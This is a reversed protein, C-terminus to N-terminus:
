VLNVLDDGSHPAPLLVSAKPPAWARHSSVKSSAQFFVMVKPAPLGGPDEVAALRAIRLPLTPRRAGARFPSPSAPLLACPSRRAVQCACAPFSYEYHFCPRSYIVLLRAM